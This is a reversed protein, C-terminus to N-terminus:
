DGKLEIGMHATIEEYVRMVERGEEGTVPPETGDLISEVFRQILTYHGGHHRGLIVKLVRSAAGAIHQFGESLNALLSGAFARQRGAGYTIIVSNMLDIHLNMKTAFIDLVTADKPWNCSSTITAMAKEGELIVRLEDAFLWDYSSLKRAHVAIPELDGLFARALYIPHPLMEGFAGGPLKHYWHDKNMIGDSDKAWSIRMDIGTLRGISGERAMSRAKMVVPDFLMSYVVCLKVRNEKSAAVMEDAEKLSLAMPKEVLVHHGTEMAKIALAAHSEPSTCIDVMDLAERELMESFDAYYANINFKRAVRGALDENRDCVAVIEANRIKLLSPIHGWQAVKGCGIIGVRMAGKTEM